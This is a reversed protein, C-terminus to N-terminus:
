WSFRSGAVPLIPLGNITHQQAYDANYVLEEPNTRNTANQVDVFVELSTTRWKFTKAVRIDLQAFAPIRTTNLAGFFPEYVGTKADLYSGTVPTRPYGSALRFRGGVSFGAGLEYSLVATLVHTQDYNYLYWPQGDGNAREAKSLTYTVWGFLRKGAQKRVLLQLGRTRGIGTGVLAQALLPSALPSRVALNSSTTQFATAEVSVIDPTGVVVGALAHQGSELGLLPNGFVSSLDAPAPPQHYLGWAAKATVLKVPSYNGSLRPELALQEQDKGVPPNTGVAPTIRNVSLFYPEVRMGPTLHVKGDALAFDTTVYPAVSAAISTGDDHALQDTPAQGFVFPDGDRVPLTNSGTRLFRSRTVQADVGTAMTLSGWTSAAMQKRWSARVSGVVANVDLDTPVVGFHDVLADHDLGFSPVISVEAGDPLQKKWRVFVRQFATDHNQQQVLTPDSSPVTDQVSDGSLMGGLELSERSSVQWVIRAQGDYYRPIPVYEGINRSTFAPLVSDLYSKRGSVEVHLGPALQARVDASSDLLDASVSGHVGEGDLPKLHIDVLGGLGRGYSAGWGGPVLEVSQVADPHIVSRFGGQHYLNPVPVDDVYVRTDQPSSGWVVLAGSGLAPRAVGPLNEVVKLVDGSTGPVKRAEDAAVVTSVVQKEVSPHAVVIELDDQDALPKTRDQPEVNYTVGTQHGATFTESTSLEPLAEGSLTVAHTGPAVGEITFHGDADTTATAGGELAVHVGALPKKTHVDLVLGRFVATTPAEARLTFEYRYALRIPAPKGDIEAPEFVFKRAAGVAAEDFAPGASGTVTVQDVAGTATLSLQLVVAAARGAKKESEPYPAEVFTVLRPAKTLKHAATAGGAPAAPADATQARGEKALTVLRLSLLAVTAAKTARSRL